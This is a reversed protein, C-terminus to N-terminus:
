ISRPVPLGHEERILDPPNRRSDMIADLSPHSEIPVFGPDTKEPATFEVQDQHIRVGTGWIDLGLELRVIVRSLSIHKKLEPIQSLFDFVRTHVLDFTEAGNLDHYELKEPLPM